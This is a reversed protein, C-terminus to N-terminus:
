KGIADLFIAEIQDSIMDEDFKKAYLALSNRSFEEILEPKALFKEVSAVIFDEVPKFKGEEEFRFLDAYLNKIENYHGLLRYTKPDYDQLPHNRYIFANSGDVAMETTAYQDTIIMPMGYALAEILVLGFGDRYTPLLFIDHSRYIEIMEQENLKADLLTLGPLTHMYDIDEQRLVNLATIITLTINDHKKRLQEYAHAVQLGGKIYFTGPFLLKLTKGAKRPRMNQKAIPIPYVIASKAELRRRVFGPYYVTAYFSKHAAQSFFILRKCSPMLALVTVILRAIPNKAIGLDYNYLALGTEIYTVYPKFTLLLCGYTFFLDGQTDFRMRVNPIGFFRRLRVVNNVKARKIEKEFTGLTHYGIGAKPPPAIQKFSFYKLKRGFNLVFRRLYPQFLIVTYPKNKEAM